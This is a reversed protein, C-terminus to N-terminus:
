WQRRDLGVPGPRFIYAEDVVVRGLRLLRNQVAQFTDGGEDGPLLFLLEDAQLGVEAAAAAVNILADDLQQELVSSSNRYALVGGM